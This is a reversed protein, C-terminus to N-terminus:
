EHRWQFLKHNYYSENILADYALTLPYSRITITLLEYTEESQAYTLQVYFAHLKM